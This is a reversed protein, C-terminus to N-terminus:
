HATFHIGELYLCDSPSETFFITGYIVGIFPFSWAGSANISISPLGTTKYCLSVTIRSLGIGGDTMGDTWNAVIQLKGGFLTGIVTSGASVSNEPNGMSTNGSNNGGCGCGCSCGCGCGCGCGSSSSAIHNEIYSCDNTVGVWGGEWLGNNCMNEFVGYNVPNNATGLIDGASSRYPIYSGFGLAYVLENSELTIWGGTWLSKRTIDVFISYPCPNNREGEGMYKYDENTSYFLGSNGNVWGGEWSSNRKLDCYSQYDYPNQKTGRSNSM